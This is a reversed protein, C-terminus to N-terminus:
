PRPPLAIAKLEPYTQLLAPPVPVHRHTMGAKLRMIASVAKGCFHNNAVVITDDATSAMSESLAVLETIEADSYNYNYTEHPPLDSAFWAKRNRGHLRFYALKTSPPTKLDFSDQTSPYDLNAVAANLGLLFQLAEPEQWSRHRVEVILPAFDGFRLHIWELLLRNAFCDSFDYRFQALIGRLIGAERLPQFADLYRQALGEDRLSRHTFDQYLKATFFFDPHDAVKRAWSETSRASPIRYFSSNIEIMDVYDALFVLPDPAYRPKLPEPAFEAFLSPQVVPQPLRYVTDRWDDYSWGAVGFYVKHAESGM